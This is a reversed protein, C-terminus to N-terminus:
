WPVHAHTFRLGDRFEERDLQEMQSVFHRIEARDHYIRARPAYLDRVGDRYYRVADRYERQAARMRDRYAETANERVSLWAPQLLRRGSMRDFRNKRLRRLADRREEAVTQLSRPPRVIVARSGRESVTRESQGASDGVSVRTLSEIPHSPDLRSWAHMSGDYLRVEENGLLEHLVFWGLSATVGTNCYVITPTELKVGKLAAVDRIERVSFLKAPGANDALLVFPLTRAGPLRGKQGPSVLKRQYSLGLYFDETRCDVLQVGSSKVADEVDQTRALLDTRTEDVIFDGRPPVERVYRLPRGEKAWQATGGDLLAVNDHGFYKLTYHLRTAHAQDKATTGRGAIVVASDQNVGSAQMLEGFAAPSPLTAKLATGQEEGKVVVKKWPM